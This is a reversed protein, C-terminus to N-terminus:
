RQDKSGQTIRNELAIERVSEKGKARDNKTRKFIVTPMHTHIHRPASMFGFILTNWFLNYEIFLIDIIKFAVLAKKEWRKFM